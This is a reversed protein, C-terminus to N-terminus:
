QCSGALDRVIEGDVGIWGNGALMSRYKRMEAGRRDRAKGSEEESPAEMLGLRIAENTWATQTTSGAPEAIALADLLAKHFARAKPPIKPLKRPDGTPEGEVCSTWGDDALRITCTEFDRWNQPTRRRCKGPPEFSLTFGIEHRVRDEKQLPTMIGVTDFRWSKTNTGYQRSTDHGTHDLWIQGIQRKTLGEVVPMTDSWTVEEKQDGATLSMVNDFIVVEVDGILDILRLIFAQGAQTNLPASNGLLPYDRALEDEMDRAYICLSGPKMTIPLRRLADASRQKILESPMEGDVYLVRAPRASQWHLFGTGSAIGCAIALGLNTKGLGTTGVLFMKSNRSVLHGLLPDPNPIDRECWAEISLASRLDYDPDVTEQAEPATKAAAVRATFETHKSIPLATVQNPPM